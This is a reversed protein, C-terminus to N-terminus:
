IREQKETYFIKAEYVIQMEEQTFHYHNVCCNKQFEGTWFDKVPTNKLVAMIAKNM